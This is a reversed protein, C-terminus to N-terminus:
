GYTLFWLYVFSCGWGFWVFGFCGAQQCCAWVRVLPLLPRNVLSWVSCRQSWFLVCRTQHSAAISSERYFVLGGWFIFPPSEYSLNLWSLHLPAVRCDSNSILSCLSYGSAIVNSAQKPVSGPYECISHLKTQYSWLWVNLLSLWCRLSLVTCLCPM